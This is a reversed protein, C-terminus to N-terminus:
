TSHEWLDVCQLLILVMLNKTIIEARLRSGMGDRQISEVRKTWTFPYNNDM